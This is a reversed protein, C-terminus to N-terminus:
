ILFLTTSFQGNHRIVISIRYMEVIFLKMKEEIGSHKVLM